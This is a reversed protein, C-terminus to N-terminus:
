RIYINIAINKNKLRLPYTPIRSFDKRNSKFKCDLLNKVNIVRSLALKIPSLPKYLKAKVYINSWYKTLADDDNPTVYNNFTHIFLVQIYLVILCLICEFM